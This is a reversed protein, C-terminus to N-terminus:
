RRTRQTSRSRGRRGDGGPVAQEKRLLTDVLRPVIADCSELSRIVRTPSFDDIAAALRRKLSRSVGSDQDIVVLRKGPDEVMAKIIMKTIYTDAESFSYGVPVIMSAENLMVQARHWLVLLPPFQVFKFSLPPVVMPRRQGGCGKCLSIVSFGLTDEEYATRLQSLPYVHAEQCSECYAWNISGHMKIIDNGTPKGDEALLYNPGIQAASYALDICGDYNTTIIGVRGTKAALEAIANHAANPEAPLMRGLLLGFLTQLTDQLLTLAAADSKDPARQLRRTGPTQASSAPFLFHDLLSLVHGSRSSFNAIYAATLLDEINTIHQSQCWEELERLDERGLKAARRWLEPLLNDVTPLSSPHPVSAGAGLVFVVKAEEPLVLKFFAADTPVVAEFEKDLRRAAEESWRPVFASRVRKWVDVWSPSTLHVDEDYIYQYILLAAHSLRGEAVSTQLRRLLQEEDFEGDFEGDETVM